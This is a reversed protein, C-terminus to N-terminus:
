YGGEAVERLTVSLRGKNGFQWDGGYLVDDVVWRPGARAMVLQDHWHAPQSRPDNYVLAIRCIARGPSTRCRMVQFRGAGEFLSTFIDGELLPPERGRTRRWHREEARAAGDLLMNLRDSLLPRLRARYRGGPVGGPRGSLYASYFDQASSQPASTPPFPGPNPEPPPAAAIAAAAALAILM